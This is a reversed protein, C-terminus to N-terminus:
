VIGGLTRRRAKTPTTAVSPASRAALAAVAPDPPSKGGVGWEGLAWRMVSAYMKMRTKVPIMKGSASGGVRMSVLTSWCTM